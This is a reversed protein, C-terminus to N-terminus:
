LVAPRVFQRLSLFEWRHLCVWLQLSCRQGFKGYQVPKPTVESFVVLPLTQDNMRSERLNFKQRIFSSGANVCCGILRRGLLGEAVEATVFSITLGCIEAEGCFSRRCRFPPSRYATLSHVPQLVARCPNAEAHACRLAFPSRRKRRIQPPLNAVTPKTAHRSAPATHLPSENDCRSCARVGRHMKTAPRPSSFLLRRDLFGHNKIVATGLQVWVGQVRLFLRFRVM